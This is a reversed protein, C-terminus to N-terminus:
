CVAKGIWPVLNGVATVEPAAVFRMRARRLRWRVQYVVQRGRLHRVTHLLLAVNM